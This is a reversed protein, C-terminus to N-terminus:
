KMSDLKLQLDRLAETLIQVEQKLKENEEILDDIHQELKENHNILDDVAEELEDMMRETNSSVDIM